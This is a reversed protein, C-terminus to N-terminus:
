LVGERKAGVRGGMIEPRGVVPMSETLEDIRNSYRLGSALYSFNKTLHLRARAGLDRGKQPHDVLDLMAQTASQVDADAWCQNQWHPYDGARLPVLEYPMLIATEDTCYDMNGSYATAIVPKGLAMAETLGFGFGESRHLSLFCDILGVLGKMESDCLLQDIVTVRDRIPALAAEFRKKMEPRRDTNNLKIVLTVDDFPRKSILASYAELVAFPNKREIFSLFDFSLLFAYASDPIGFYRRSRLARRKIESALPLHYVPIDVSKSIARCTFASAAWVEDFRMLQHAWEEPYRELEWAPYIVNRSGESMLNSLLSLSPEVEDGNICYINVGDGLRPTISPGFEELLEDDPRGNPGYIDVIGAKVGVEALGRAVARLHEGMGIPAFPHGVVRVRLDRRRPHSARYLL